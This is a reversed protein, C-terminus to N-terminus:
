PPTVIAKRKGRRKLTRTTVYNSFGPEQITEDQLPSRIIRGGAFSGDSLKVALVGYAGFTNATVTDTDSVSVAGDHMFKRLYIWKGRANRRTTKWWVLGAQDGAMVAESAGVALTGPIPAAESVLDYVWVAPSHADSNAYGYARVVSTGSTYCTKEWQVLETFLNLWATEDSPVVGTFWYKSAWEENPDGRYNFRKVTVLGTATPM